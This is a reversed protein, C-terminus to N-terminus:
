AVFILCCSIEQCPPNFFHTESASSLHLVWRTNYARAPPNESTSFEQDSRGRGRASTIGLPLNTDHISSEQQYRRGPEAGIRRRSSRGRSRRRRYHVVAVARVVGVAVTTAFAVAMLEAAPEAVVATAALLAGAAAAQEVVPLAPGVAVATAFGSMMVVVVAAAAAVGAAAVLGPTSAELAHEMLAAVVAGVATVVAASIASDASRRNM